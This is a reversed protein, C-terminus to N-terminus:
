GPPPESAVGGLVGGLADVFRDVLDDRFTGRYTELLARVRDAAVASYRRQGDVYRSEVLGRELLRSLHFSVTSKGVPSRQQIESFSRVPEAVLVVLIARQTPSRLAQLLRRDEWRLTTPFYFDRRGGRERRLAGSTILRELHYSTQGWALGVARQLDRASAGPHREVEEVLRRRTPQDRIEDM